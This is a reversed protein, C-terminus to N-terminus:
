QAVRALAELAFHLTDSPSEKLLIARGDAAQGVDFLSQVPHAKVLSKRNSDNELASVAVMRKTHSLRRDYRYSAFYFRTDRRAANKALSNAGLRLRIMSAALFAVLDVIVVPSAVVICIRPGNPGSKANLIPWGPIESPM